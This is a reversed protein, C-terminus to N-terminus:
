DRPFIPPVQTVSNVQAGGFTLRALTERLYSVENRLAHQEQAANNVIRKMTDNHESRLKQLDAIALDRQQEANHVRQTLTLAKSGDGNAAAAARFVEEGNNLPALETPQKGRRGPKRGRKSKRKAM